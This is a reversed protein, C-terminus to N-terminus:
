RATTHNGCGHPIALRSELARRLIAPAAGSSPFCLMDAPVCLCPFLPRRTLRSRGDDAVPEGLGCVRVPVAPQWPLDSARARVGRAIPAAISGRAAFFPVACATCVQATVNHNSLTLLRPITLFYHNSVYRNTYHMSTYKSLLWEHQASGSAYGFRSEEGGQQDWKRARGEGDEVRAAPLIYRDFVSVAAQIGRTLYEM